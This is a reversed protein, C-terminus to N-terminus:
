SNLFKFALVEFIFFTSVIHLFFSEGKFKYTKYVQYTVLMVTKFSTDCTSYYVLEMLFNMQFKNM